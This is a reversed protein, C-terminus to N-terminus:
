DAAVLFQTAALRAQGALRFSLAPTTMAVQRQLAPAM